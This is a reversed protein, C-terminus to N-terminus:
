IAAVHGRNDNTKTTTTPTGIGHPDTGGGAARRPSGRVGGRVVGGRVVGGEVSDEREGMWVESETLGTERESALRADPAATSVVMGAAFPAGAALDADVRVAACVTACVTFVGLAVADLAADVGPGSASSSDCFATGAAAILIARKMEDQGVIASFPYPPRTSPARAM